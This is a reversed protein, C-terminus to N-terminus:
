CCGELCWRGVDTGISSNYCTLIGRISCEEVGQVFIGFQRSTSLLMTTSIVPRVESPTWM